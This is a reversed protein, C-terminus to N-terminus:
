LILYHDFHIIITITIVIIITTIIIIYLHHTFPPVKSQKTTNPNDKKKRTHVLLLGQKKMAMSGTRKTEHKKTLGYICTRVSLVVTLHNDLQSKSSDFSPRVSMEYFLSCCLCGALLCLLLCCSSLHLTQLPKIEWSSLLSGVLVCLFLACCLFALLFHHHLCFLLLLFVLFVVSSFIVCVYYVNNNILYNSRSGKDIMVNMYDIYYLTYHLNIFVSDQKTYQNKHIAGFISHSLRIICESSLIMSIPYTVNYEYLSDKNNDNDDNDDSQRKMQSM